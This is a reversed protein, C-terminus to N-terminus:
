VATKLTDAVKKMFLLLTQKVQVVKLHKNIGYQMHLLYYETASDWQKEQLVTKISFSTCGISTHIGQESRQLLHVIVSSM